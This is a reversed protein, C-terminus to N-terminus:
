EDEVGTEDSVRDGIPPTLFCKNTLQITTKSYKLLGKASMSCAVKQYGSLKANDYGLEKATEMFGHVKGDSLLDFLEVAKQSKLTEKLKTQFFDNTLTSPDVKNGYQELGKDTFTVTKSCPFSVLGAGKHKGLRKSFGAPTKGNGSHMMLQPRTPVKIELFHLEAMGKLISCGGIGKTPGGKGSPATCKHKVPAAKKTPVAKNTSKPVPAKRQSAVATSNVPPPTKPAVMNAVTAIFRGFGREAAEELVTELDKTSDMSLWWEDGSGSGHKIVVEYEELDFGDANTEPFTMGIVKGAFAEFTVEDLDSLLFQHIPHDTVSFLVSIAHACFLL